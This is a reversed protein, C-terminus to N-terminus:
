AIRVFQPEIYISHAGGGSDEAGNERLWLEAHGHEDIDRIEYVHGVAKQFLEFTEPFRKQDRLVAVPIQAVRIRDGVKLRGATM